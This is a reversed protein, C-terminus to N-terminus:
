RKGVGKAFEIFSLIMPIGISAAIGMNNAYKLIIDTQLVNKPLMAIIYVIPAFLIAYLRVDKNRFLNAFMTVSGSYYGSVTTFVILVWTSVAVAGLRELLRGPGSVSMMISMSPWITIKTKALGLVAIVVIVIYLYVLTVVIFTIKLITTGKSKDTIHPAAILLLEFGLFTYIANFTTRALGGASNRFFPLFETLDVKNIPALFILAVFFIIFPFLIQDVKTTTVIGSVSVYITLLLLLIMIFWEPTEVLVYTTMVDAFIRVTYASVVLFFITYLLTLLTGILRGTRNLLYETFTPKDMRSVIYSIFLSLIFTVIGSIILVFWSDPGVEVALLRPLTLIGTGIMTSVLLAVAQSPTIRNGNEM